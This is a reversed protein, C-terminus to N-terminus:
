AARRRLGAKDNRYYFWLVSRDIMTRVELDTVQAQYDAMARVCTM